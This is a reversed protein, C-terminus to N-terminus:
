KRRQVKEVVIQKLYIYDDMKTLECIGFVFLAGVIVQLILTLVYPTTLFYGLIFVTMAMGAALLGMAQLKRAHLLDRELQIVRKQLTQFQAETHAM